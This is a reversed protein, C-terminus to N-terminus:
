SIIIKNLLNMANFHDSFPAHYRMYESPTPFGEGKFVHGLHGGCATCTIEIRTM